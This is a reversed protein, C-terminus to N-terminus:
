GDLGVKKTFIEFENLNESISIVSDIKRLEHDKSVREAFGYKIFTM